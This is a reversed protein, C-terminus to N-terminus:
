RAFDGLERDQWLHAEESSLLSGNVVSSLNQNTITSWLISCYPLLDISQHADNNKSETRMEASLRQCRRGSDFVGM